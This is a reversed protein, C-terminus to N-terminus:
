RGERTFLLDAQPFDYRHGFAVLGDTTVLYPKYGYGEIEQVLAPYSDNFSPSIEVLLNKVRQAKLWKRMAWVAFRENGELDVKVLEVDCLPVPIEPANDDVWREWIVIKDQVKLRKANERLVDANEPNGEVALVRYGMQAAQITYWGIHAGFDWVEGKRDGKELVSRVIETEIPEWGGTNILTRSVDDQGTCYGHFDKYQEWDYVRMPGIKTPVTILDHKSHGAQCVTMKIATIWTWNPYMLNRDIRRVRLGNEELRDLITGLPHHYNFPARQRGEVFQFRFVGNKKLRLGVDYFYMIVGEPPIHQFTLMSYIADYMPGPPLHRGDTLAYNVRHSLDNHRAIELLKHSIDIGTISLDFESAVQLNNTLRGIGCGIELVEYGPKLALHPVINELCEKTRDKKEAWMEFMPDPSDAKAEWFDSENQSAITTNTTM